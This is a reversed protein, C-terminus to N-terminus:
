REKTRSKVIRINKIGLMKEIDSITLDTYELHLKRNYIPQVDRCHGGIVSELHDFSKIDGVDFLVNIGSCPFSLDDFLEDVDDYGGDKYVMLDEVIVFETGDDMIGFMGTRLDKNTM